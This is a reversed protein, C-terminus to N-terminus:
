SCSDMWNDIWDDMQNDTHNNMQDDIHNVTHNDTHNDIQLPALQRYLCSTGFRLSRYCLLHGVLSTSLTKLCDKSAIKRALFDVWAMATGKDMQNDMQNHIQLTVQGTIQYKGTWSDLKM